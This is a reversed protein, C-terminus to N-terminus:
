EPGLLSSVRAALTEPNGTVSVTKVRATSGGTLTVDRAPLGLWGAVLRELAENAAGKEPVARVRAALHTSGDSASGIGEVRDFASRPTLRVRLEIGQATQRLPLGM